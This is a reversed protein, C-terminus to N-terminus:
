DPKGLGMVSRSRRKSRPAPQSGNSAFSRDSMFRSPPTEYLSQSLKYEVEEKGMLLLRNRDCEKRIDDELELIKDTLDEEITKKKDLAKELEIIKREMWNIKARYSVLNEAEKELTNCKSQLSHLEGTRLDVVSRLSDVEASSDKALKDLRDIEKRCRHIEKTKAAVAKQEDM